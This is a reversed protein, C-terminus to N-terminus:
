NSVYKLGNQIFVGKQPKKSHRHGQLDYISDRISLQGVIEPSLLGTADMEVINEFNSWGRTAKYKMGCGNPVFLTINSTNLYRFADTDFPDEIYTVVSILNSFAFADIGISSISKPIVVRTLGTLIFAKEGIRSVSYEHGDIEFKDLISVDSIVNPSGPFDEESLEEGYGGLIDRWGAKVEASNDNTNYTYVVNTQPDIYEDVTKYFDENTFVCKGNVECSTFIEYDCLCDPKPGYISPYRLGYRTYGIGEVGIVLKKEKDNEYYTHRRYQIGDVKIFDIYEKIASYSNNVECGGDPAYLGEYEFDAVIIDKDILPFRVFVKFGEERYAAYYTEQNDVEQYMKYYSKNGIVTDGIITYRVPYIKETPLEGENDEFHHYEYNWSKGYELMVPLSVSQASVRISLLLFLLYLLKHIM